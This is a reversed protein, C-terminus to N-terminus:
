EYGFYSVRCNGSSFFSQNTNQLINKKKINKMKTKGILFQNLGTIETTSSPEVEAQPEAQNALQELTEKKITCHIKCTEWNIVIHAIEVEEGVKKIVNLDQGVPYIIYRKFGLQIKTEARTLSKDVYHKNNVVEVLFQQFQPLFELVNSLQKYMPFDVKCVLIGKEIVIDRFDIGNVDVHYFYEKYKFSM